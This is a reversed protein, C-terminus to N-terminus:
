FNVLGLNFFFDRILLVDSIRKELNLLVLMLVPGTEIGGEAVM